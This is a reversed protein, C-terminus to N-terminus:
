NRKSESLWGMRYNLRFEDHKLRGGDIRADFCLLVLASLAAERVFQAVNTDVVLNRLAAEDSDFTGALIGSLTETIADGLLDEVRDQPGHLLRVLPQFVEPIRRGGLIHLGRFFLRGSKDDIEEISAREVAAIVDDAIHAVYATAV